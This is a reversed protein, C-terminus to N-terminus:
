SAQEWLERVGVLVPVDAPDEHAKVLMGALHATAPNAHILRHCPSCVNLLNALDNTGLQSRRKRHHVVNGWTRCGPLRAECRGMSRREVKPRQADLEAGYARRGPTPARRIPGRRLLPTVRRLVGSRKV